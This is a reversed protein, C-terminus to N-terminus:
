ALARRIRRLGEQLTARPCGFNLRVFGPAGFDAGNSLGVGADEFFRVPSEHGLERVDLWALYTAAMPALRLRPAYGGLEQYVLDRNARLYEILEIRWPEGHRYAAVCGAYGFANIETIVGRAVRRFSERLTEDPIM